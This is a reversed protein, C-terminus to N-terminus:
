VAGHGRIVVPITKLLLKIDLWLSWDNIYRLDLELWEDFSLNSRGSVQWICALGPRVCFRKRQISNDFHEVDRQSMPRPGVLSM